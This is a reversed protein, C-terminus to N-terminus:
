RDADKKNITELYAILSDAAIVNFDFVPMDAHGVWVGAVLDDALVDPDYRLLLTNFPPANRDPSATEQDIAHCSACQELALQRGASAFNEPYTRGFSDLSPAVTIVKGGDSACAALGAFLLGGAAVLIRFLSM